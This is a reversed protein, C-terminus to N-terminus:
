QFPSRQQGPEYYRRMARLDDGQLKALDRMMRIDGVVQGFGYLVIAPMSLGVAILFTILHEAGGLLPAVPMPTNIAFAFALWVFALYVASVVKLVIAM